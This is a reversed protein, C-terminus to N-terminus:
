SCTKHRPAPLPHFESCTKCRHWMDLANDLQSITPREADLWQSAPIAGEVDGSLWLERWTQKVVDSMWVDNWSRTEFYDNLGVLAQTAETVHIPALRDMRACRVLTCLIPIFNARIDAATTSCVKQAVDSYLSREFIGHTPHLFDLGWQPLITLSEVNREVQFRPIGFDNASEALIHWRIRRINDVLDRRCASVGGPENPWTGTDMALVHLNESTTNGMQVSQAQKNSAVATRLDSFRLALPVWSSIKPNLNLEPLIADANASLYETAGELKGRDRQQWYPKLIDSSRLMMGDLWRATVADVENSTKWSQWLHSRGQTIPVPYRQINRKFLRSLVGVRPPFEVLPNECRFPRVAPRELVSFSDESIISPVPIQAGNLTVSLSPQFRHDYAWVANYIKEGEIFLAATVRPFPIWEDLQGSTRPMAWAVDVSVNPLVYEARVIEDPSSDNAKAYWYRFRTPKIGSLASGSVIYGRSDYHAVQSKLRGALCLRQIPVETPADTSSVQGYEYAFSNTLVGKTDYEDRARLVRDSTYSNIAALGEKRSPEQLHLGPYTYLQFSGDSKSHMFCTSRGYLSVLEIRGQQLTATEAKMSTYLATVRERGHLQNLNSIDAALYYVVLERVLILSLILDQLLKCFSWIGALFWRALTSLISPQTRLMYHLERQYETDAALALVTFKICTDIAQYTRLLKEKMIALAGKPEVCTEEDSVQSSSGVQDQSSHHSLVTVEVKKDGAGPLNSQAICVVAEESVESVCTDPTIGKACKSVAGALEASLDSRALWITADGPRSLKFRSCMWTAVSDSLHHPQGRARQLLFTRVDHPLLDWEQDVDVGLVLHRFISEQSRAVFSAHDRPSLALQRKVREPVPLHSSHDEFDHLLIEALMAHSNSWGFINKATSSVLTEAITYNSDQLNDSNPDWPTVVIIHLLGSTKKSLSRFSPNEQSQLLCDPSLIEVVIRESEWLEATRRLVGAADQFAHSIRLDRLPRPSLLIQKIAPHQLPQVRPRVHVPLSMITDFTRALSSQPIETVSDPDLGRCTYTAIESDKEKCDTMDPAWGVTAKFFSLFAVTWTGAALGVAGSYSFGTSVLRLLICTAFGVATGLALARDSRHRAYIRSYQYWLLGSYAGVYALYMQTAARSSEFAWLLASTVALGWVHLLSYKFLHTWYLARRNRKNNRIANDLSELSSVQQDGDKHALAWLPKSVADLIIAGALYYALGFGVALRYTESSISLGVISEGTFLATWKDMLALAFYLLGGWVEQGSHVWHLFSSHQKLGKQMAVLSEIASKLQLNWTTSYPLPLRTGMYKCYWTLLLIVAPHGKALREVFPDTEARRSIHFSQAKEVSDWLAQRITPYSPLEGKWSGDPNRSMHIQQYWEIVEEDTVCAIDLYWSNWQCVV